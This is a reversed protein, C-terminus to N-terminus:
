FIYYMSSLQEREIIAGGGRVLDIFKGNGVDKYTYRLLFGSLLFFMCVGIIGTPNYKMNLRTIHSVLVMCFAIARVGDATRIKEM